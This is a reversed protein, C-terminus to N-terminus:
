VYYTNLATTRYKEFQSPDNRQLLNENLPWNVTYQRREKIIFFTQTPVLYALSLHQLLLGLYTLFSLLQALFHARFTGDPYPWIAPNQYSTSELGQGFFWSYLQPWTPLVRTNPTDDTRIEAGPTPKGSQRNEHYQAAGASLNRSLLANGKLRM